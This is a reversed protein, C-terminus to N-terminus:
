LSGSSGRIHVTEVVTLYIKNYKDLVLVIMLL